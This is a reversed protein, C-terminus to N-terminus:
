LSKEAFWVWEAVEDHGPKDRGGLIVWADRFNQIAVVDLTETFPFKPSLVGVSNCGVGSKM